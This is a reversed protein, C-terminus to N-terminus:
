RNVLQSAPASVTPQWAPVNPLLSRLSPLAADRESIMPAAVPWRLGLDPDDYRCGLEDALNWYESVGYVHVTPQVFCFGHAVGPPIRLVRMRDGTLTVNYTCGETPSGRRLDRMGFFGEGEVVVIYDYHKKHVHVGRLVGANSRAINWQKFDVDVWGRRFLETFDGREDPHTTLPLVSVGEIPTAEHM